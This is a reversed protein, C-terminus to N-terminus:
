YNNLLAMLMEIAGVEISTSGYINHGQLIKAPSAKLEICPNRLKTGQYIKFAMGTFHTPLSQFPHRLDAVEYQEVGVAGTFFITKAELGIGRRSCEKIDVYTTCEGSKEQLTSFTFEEKFPISIKLKDIM